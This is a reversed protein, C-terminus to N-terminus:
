NHSGTLSLGSYAAYGRIMVYYTGAKATAISCTGANTGGNSRCDYTTTTPASGFRVYLDADGTGGATVFKLGTAGSPVVMTFTTNSSKAGSIGTKAVGNTLVNSATGVTVSTTKSNTAGKNDTVTLVVSYTVPLLM